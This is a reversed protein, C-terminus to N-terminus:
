ENAAGKRPAKCRPNASRERAIADVELERYIVTPGITGVSYLRDAYLARASELRLGWRAAAERLTCNGPALLRTMTDSYCVLIARM